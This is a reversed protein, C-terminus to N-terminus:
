VFPRRRLLSVNSKLKGCIQEHRNFNELLHRTTSKHCNTVPAESSSWAEIDPYDLIIKVESVIIKM